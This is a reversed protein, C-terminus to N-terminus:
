SKKGKGKGRTQTVPFDLTVEFPASEPGLSSGSFTRQGNVTSYQFKQVDGICPSTGGLPNALGSDADLVLRTASTRTITLCEGPGTLSVGQHYFIQYGRDEEPTTYCRVNGWGRVSAGVSALAEFWDPTSASEFLIHMSACVIGVSMPGAHDTSALKSVLRMGRSGPAEPTKVLLRDQNLTNVDSDVVSPELNRVYAAELQTSLYPGGGDSLLSDYSMDRLTASQIQEFRLRQTPATQAAAFPVSGALTAFALVGVLSLRDKM